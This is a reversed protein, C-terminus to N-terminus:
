ATSVDDSGPILGTGRRPVRLEIGGVEVEDVFLAMDVERFSRQELMYAPTQALARM